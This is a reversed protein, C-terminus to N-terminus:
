LTKCGHRGEFFNIHFSAKIKQAEENIRQLAKEKLDNAKTSMQDIEKMYDKVKTARHKMKKATKKYEEGLAKAAGRYDHILQKYDSQLQNAVRELSTNSFTRRLKDKIASSIGGDARMDSYKSQMHPVEVLRVFLLHLGQCILALFCLDWSLASVALGYLGAYGVISDPNNLYRYIGSYSLMSDVEEIFFDGYFWGFDGLVEYSSTACWISLSVLFLSLVQLAWYSPDLFSEPMEIFKIFCSIFSVLNMTYSINYIQKWSNFAEQRTGGRELFTRTWLQDRSQRHLIYGLGITHLLKWFLVQCVFFWKPLGVLSLVISQIVLLAQALDVGRLPNFNRFFILERYIFFGKESYLDKQNRADMPSVFEGYINAIHPNEVFALFVLQCFHAGVSVFFVTYSRSLLTAGYYFSYGVTYMPHPFLQYIGDFDLQQDVRFFFDGWYWAYDGVVRHADTKAWYNFVILAVGLAYQLPIWISFESPMEAYKICLLLYSLGDHGLILNVLQRFLLWSCFSIPLEATSTKDSVGGKIIKQLTPGYGLKSLAIYARTFAKSKSQQYLIVGLGANYSMRWFMYSVLYFEKPTNTFLVLFVYFFALIMTFMNLMTWNSPFALSDFMNLTKPVIFRKGDDGYGEYEQHGTQTQTQTPATAKTEPQIPGSSEVEVLFKEPEKVVLEEPFQSGIITNLRRRRLQSVSAMTEADEPEIDDSVDHVGDEESQAITQPEQQSTTSEVITEILSEVSVQAHPTPLLDEEYPGSANETVPVIIEQVAGEPISEDQVPLETASPESLATSSMAPSEVEGTPTQNILVFEGTGGEVDHPQQEEM